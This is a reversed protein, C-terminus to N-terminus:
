QTEWNDIETGSPELVQTSYVEQTFIPGEVDLTQKRNKNNLEVDRGVLIEPIQSISSCFPQLDM